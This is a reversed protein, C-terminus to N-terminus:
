GKKYGLTNNLPATRFQESIYNPDNSSAVPDHSESFKNISEANMGLVTNKLRDKTKRFDESLDNPNSSNPNGTSSHAFSNINNANTGLITPALRARALRFDESMGGANNSDSM